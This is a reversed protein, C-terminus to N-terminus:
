DREEEEEKIGAPDASETGAKAALPSAEVFEVGVTLSQDEAVQTLWDADTAACGHVPTSTFDNMFPGETAEGIFLRYQVACPASSVKLKLAGRLPGHSVMRAFADRQQASRGGGTTPHLMLRAEELCGASFAPSVLAKGLSSRLKTRLQAIRWEARWRRSGDELEVHTIRVETPKVALESATGDTLLRSETSARVLEDEMVGM